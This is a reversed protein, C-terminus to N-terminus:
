PKKINRRCVQKKNKNKIEPTLIKSSTASEWTDVIIYNKKREKKQILIRV